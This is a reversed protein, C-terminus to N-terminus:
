FSVLKFFSGVKVADISYSEDAPENEDRRHEFVVPTDDPVDYILKKLEGVNM